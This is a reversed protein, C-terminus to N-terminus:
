LRVRGTESKEEEIIKDEHQEDPRTFQCDLDATDITVVSLSDARKRRFPQGDMLSDRREMRSESRHFSFDIGETNEPVDQLVSEKTPKPETLFPQNSSDISWHISQDSILLYSILIGIVWETVSASTLENTRENRETTRENGREKMDVM